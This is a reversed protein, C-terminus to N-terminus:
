DHDANTESPRRLLQARWVGEDGPARVMIKATLDGDSVSHQLGDKLHISFKALDAVTGVTNLRLCGDMDRNNFDVFITGSCSRRGESSAGRYGVFCRELKGMNRARVTIRRRSNGGAMSNVENLCTM